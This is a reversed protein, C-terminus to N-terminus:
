PDFRPQAAEFAATSGNCWEADDLVPKRPEGLLIGALVGFREWAADDAPAERGKEAEAVMERVLEREFETLM